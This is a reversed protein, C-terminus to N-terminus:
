DLPLQVGIGTVTGDSVRVRNATAVAMLSLRKYGM